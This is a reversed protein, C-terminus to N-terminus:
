CADRRTGRRAARTRWARHATASYACGRVATTRCFCEGGYPLEHESLAAHLADALADPPTRRHDRLVLVRPRPRGARGARVRGGRGSPAHGRGAPAGDPRRVELDTALVRYAHREGRALRGATITEGLLVTADSAVTVLTHQHFRAGAFPILPDPLYEVFAGPGAEVRVSQTAYDHEMGYVKTAAQTTVHVRTGAGCRVDMRYRDAQAIGGGTSMVYVFAMEPLHPDIYLPRMMQLPTKQYRGVLETRGRERAFTLDLIGVKAPSGAPLTDPVSALAAFRAPVRAQEYYAPSLRDVTAPRHRGM